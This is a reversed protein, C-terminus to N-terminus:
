YSGVDITRSQDDQRAKSYSASAAAENTVAPDFPVTFYFQTGIGLESRVRLRGGLLKVLQNAIALGLGTGGFERTTSADVQTFPMMIKELDHQSIGVGTDLVSFRYQWQGEGSTARTVEVQVSGKHTFKIANSVLNTLIQRLRHKDGIVQGPEFNVMSVILALGKSEALYRLINCTDRVLNEVDFTCQELEMGGAEIRSLDLLDNILHLLCDGSDRITSAYERQEEDLDSLLLLETMGLVGNMPTRIEHSVNALFRSKAQNALESQQLADELADGRTQITNLMLDFGHMLEGFEDRRRANLRYSFDGDNAVGRMAVLLQQIPRYIIRQLLSAAGISILVAVILIVLAVRGLYAMERDLAATDFHTVLTGLEQGNHIVTRRVVIMGPVANIGSSEVNAAIPLGKHHAFLTGKSDYLGTAAVDEDTALSDIIETASEPDSFILSAQLNDAIVRVLASKSNKYEREVAESQLVYFAAISATTVLMVVCIYTSFIKARLSTRLKFYTRM